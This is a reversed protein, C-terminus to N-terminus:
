FDIKLVEADGNRLIELEFAQDDSLAKVAARHLDVLSSVDERGARVIEDGKELGAKMALSDRVVGIVKIRGDEEEAVIGLRMRERSAPCFYHWPNDESIDELSRVPIMRTIRAEPVLLRLRHEIGWGRYVHGTGALIVVPKQMTERAKVAESAMKSDWASQASAFRRFKVQDAQILDEHLNFQDLLMELQAEPPEIIKWPLFKREEPSLNDLGYRSISRTVHSPLNLALVPIDFERAQSFIPRYLEFGYGWHEEWRLMEPLLDTDIHGDNFVDLVEQREVSVMELGLVFELGAMAMLEVMRAQVQHDCINDHSEGILIFDMNRLSDILVGEDVQRKQSSFFAGPEPEKLPATIPHRPACGAFLFFLILFLPLRKIM